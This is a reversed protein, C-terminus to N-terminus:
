AGTAPRVGALVPDSPTFDRNGVEPVFVLHLVASADCLPRCGAARAAQAVAALAQGEAVEAAEAPALLTRAQQRNAPTLDDLWTSPDGTGNAAVDNLVEIAAVRRAEPTLTRAKTALAEAM